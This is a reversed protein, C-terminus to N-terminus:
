NTIKNLLALQQNSLKATEKLLDLVYKRQFIFLNKNLTLFRLGLSTHWNKSSRLRLDRALCNRLWKKTEDNWTVIIDDVYVFVITTNGRKTYKIFFTHDEQSQKNRNTAYNKLRGSWTRPSQKLGCLEKKLWWMKGPEIKGDFGPRIKMFMEELNGHTFANNVNFQQLNWWVTSNLVILGLRHESPWRHLPKSIILKYKETYGETVLM